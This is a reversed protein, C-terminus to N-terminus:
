AGKINKHDFYLRAVIIVNQALVFLIRFSLKGFKILNFVYLFKVKERETTTDTFEGFM